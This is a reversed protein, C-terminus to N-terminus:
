WLGVKVKEQVLSAGDREHGYRSLPFFPPNVGIGSPSLSIVIESWLGRQKLYLKSFPQSDPM